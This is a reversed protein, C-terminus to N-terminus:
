AETPSPYMRSRSTKKRGIMVFLGGERGGGLLMGAQVLFHDIASGRPQPEFLREDASFSQSAAAKPISNVFEVGARDFWGLM